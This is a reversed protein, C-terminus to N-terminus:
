RELDLVGSLICVVSASLTVRPKIIKPVKNRKKVSFVFLKPSKDLKSCNDIENKWDTLALVAPNLVNSILENWWLEIKHKIIKIIIPADGTDVAPPILVVVNPKIKIDNM